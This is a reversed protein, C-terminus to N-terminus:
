REKACGAGVLTKAFAHAVLDAANSDPSHSEKVADMVAVVTDVTDQTAAGKCETAAVLTDIVGVVYFLCGLNGEKCAKMLTGARMYHDRVVVADAAKVTASRVCTGFLLGAVVCGICAFTKSM